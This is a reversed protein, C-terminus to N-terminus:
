RCATAIWSAMRQPIQGPLLTQGPCDLWFRPVAAAEFELRSASAELSPRLSEGTVGPSEILLVHRGLSRQNALLDIRGIERRLSDRFEFGLLERGEGTDAASTGAMMQQHLDALERLYNEGSVVPEWLVLGEVPGREAAFLAALTAGFRLGVLCLRAYGRARLEGAACGIDDLWRAISADEWDGPSDGTGYYDFRLVALGADSLSAALQGSCRHANYFEHALPPCFLV